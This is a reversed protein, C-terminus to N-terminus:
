VIAESGDRRDVRVSARFDAVVEKGSVVARAGGGSPM